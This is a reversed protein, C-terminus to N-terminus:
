FIHWIEWGDDANGGEDGMWQGSEGGKGQDM